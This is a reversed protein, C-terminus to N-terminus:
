KLSDLLKRAEAEQPFAMGTRLLREIEQRARARDGSKNLGVALHWQIEAADPAKALAKKIMELGRRHQGAKILNWGLTDLTAPNDPSLALATEATALANPSGLEGRVWALNNYAVVDRPNARALTSYQQEAEKLRKDGLLVLAFQHRVQGDDPKTELWQRLAKEGDGSQGAALYARYANIMPQGQGSLQAAKAYLKAAAVYQRDLFLIEAESHYGEAAKPARAQLERAIKIGEGTRGEHGLLLAKSISAEAYDPQLSLAKNLSKLAAGRDKGNFQALALQYHSRPDKPAAEVWKGYASLANAEDGQMAYAAGILGHFGANGTAELAARAESLAKGADRKSLWYRTLMQRATADKSDTKKAQEIYKVYEGENKELAALEALAIMARATKPRHKLVQEFRSRASKIDKDALDLRALNSAAALYGPEIEMAKAFHQRAQAIDKRAVHLAGRLNEALALGPNRRELNAIAKLAADYRKAKLHTMVLIVDAQHSATDKEALRTLAEIAGSEDGSAMRSAALERILATNDPALLSAKELKQRAEQLNGLRQAINGQLALLQIDGDDDKLNAILERAREAQGSDLMATALLKRALPHDPAAELVRNLRSIASERKGQSLDIAGALLNAPAFDPAGRLVDQLKQAAADMNKRRFDILGELYRGMLNNPAYGRLTKLEAQAKDLDSVSLYHQAMALRAALNAPEIELAKRYVAIAEDSRKQARLLDAKMLQLDARGADKATAKELMELAQDQRGDAFSQGARVALTDPHDPILADAQQLSSAMGKKDGLMAHAQARIALIAANSEAPAGELVNIGDVIKEPQRLVLLTRALLIAAEPAKYGKSLALRLEKEANIFDNNAFHLKGLRFRAEANGPEQQLVNKLEIAAGKFDGARELTQASAMRQEPSAKGKVLYYAAGGLSAVLLLATPVLLRKHEALRQMLSRKHSSSHPSASHM